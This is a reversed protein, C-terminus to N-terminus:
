LVRLSRDMTTFTEFGSDTIVGTDEVMMGGWGPEYYPTELCFTSGARLQAKNNPTIVPWEYTSLGIAHGVHHRHFPKLGKAEVTHITEAFVMESVAGTKAKEFATELGALLADYRKQQLATPEGIVATRAIDSKYGYYSCGIDFRLLDGKALPRESSLVDALASTAGGAVTVNRPYGGAASMAAAVVNSVEKDTVGVGAAAMGAELARETLNAVHRLLSQEAPLKVARLGLMWQSADRIENFCDKFVVQAENPLCSAEILANGVKGFRALGQRLAPAFSLHEVNVTASPTEGSFYFRGFPIVDDPAFGEYIAPAFDGCPAVLVLQDRSIIAAYPHPKNLSALMSEYGTMYLVNEASSVVLVDADENKLADRM